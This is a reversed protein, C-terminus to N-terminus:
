SVQLFDAMRDVPIWIMTLRMDQVQAKWADVAVCEYECQSALNGDTRTRCARCERM